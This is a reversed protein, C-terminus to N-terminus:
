IITACIHIGLNNQFSLPTPSLSLLPQPNVPVDPTLTPAKLSVVAICYHLAMTIYHLTIYYLFTIYNYHLTIYHLPTLTPAKLSVAAICYLGHM